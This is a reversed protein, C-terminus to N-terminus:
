ASPLAPSDDVAIFRAASVVTLRYSGWAAFVGPIVAFPGVIAAFPVVTLAGAGTGTILATIRVSNRQSWPSILWLAVVPALLVSALFGTIAGVIGGGVGGFVGGLGTGILAGM